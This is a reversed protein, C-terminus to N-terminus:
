EKAVKARKIKNERRKVRETTRHKCHPETVQVYDGDTPCYHSGNADAFGELLVAKGCRACHCGCKIQFGDYKM